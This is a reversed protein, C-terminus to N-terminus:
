QDVARGDVFAVVRDAAEAVHRSHTVTVITAPSVDRLTTLADLVIEENAADLEGTPEDALLLPAERAAAAAIAVRQQEGGSLQAPRHRMRRNLGFRALAADAREGADNMGALRLSAVVNERATLDNWLNDSQFVLAV